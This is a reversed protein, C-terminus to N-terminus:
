PLEPRDCPVLLASTDFDAETTGCRYDVHVSCRAEYRVARCEGEPYHCADPLAPEAPSPPELQALSYGRTQPIEHRSLPGVRALAEVWTPACGARVQEERTPEATTTL